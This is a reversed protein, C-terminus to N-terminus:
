DLVPLCTTTEATILLLKKKMKLWLAFINDVATGYWKVKAPKYILKLNTECFLVSVM